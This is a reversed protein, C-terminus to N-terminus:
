QPGGPIRPDDALVRDLWSLMGTLFEERPGPASLSPEHVAGDIVLETVRPGVLPALTAIREVDVVIDQSDLLANDFREPGSRASRAVLVPVEIHVRGKRIRQQARRVALAWAARAPVGQPRKLATDFEWRGGNSAHLHTAYVSPHSSVIMLPNIATMVPLLPAGWRQLPRSRRGFLPSNLVLARLSPPRREHAWITAALGAASHAHIVLPVGPHAQTLYRVATDIDDGPQSIDSMFHPIDGERLTRGAGRMDVAYFAFRAATFAQALHTQFFYDNYGHVHLVVARPAAPLAHPRVVTVEGVRAAEFGDLIDREWAVAATESASM